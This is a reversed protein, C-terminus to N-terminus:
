IANKRVARSVARIMDRDSLFYKYESCGVIVGKGDVFFVRAEGSKLAFNQFWGADVDAWTATGKLHRLIEISASSSLGHVNVSERSVGTVRAIFVSTAESTQQEVWGTKDGRTPGMCSNALIPPSAVVGVLALVIAVVVQMCDLTFIVPGCCSAAFGGEM